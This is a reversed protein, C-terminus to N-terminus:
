RAMMREDYLWEWRGEGGFAGGRQTRDATGNPMACCWAGAHTHLWREVGFERGGPELSSGGTLM